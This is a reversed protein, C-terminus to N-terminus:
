WKDIKSKVKRKIKFWVSNSHNDNHVLIEYAEMAGASFVVGFIGVALALFVIVHYDTWPFIGRVTVALVLLGAIFLVTSVIAVIVYKRKQSLYETTLGKLFDYDFLLPERKLVKYEDKSVFMSVVIHIFTYYHTIVSQFLAEGYSGATQM